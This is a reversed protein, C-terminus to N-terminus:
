KVFTFLAPSVTAEQKKQFQTEINNKTPEM